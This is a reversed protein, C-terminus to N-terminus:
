YQRLIVALEAFDDPQYITNPQYIPVLVRLLGDALMNRNVSPGPAGLTHLHRSLAALLNKGGMDRLYEDSALFTPDQFSTLLATYHATIAGPQLDPLAAVATCTRGLRAAEQQLAPLWQARARHPCGQPRRPVGQGFSVSGIANIQQVMEERLVEAAFIKSGLAQM